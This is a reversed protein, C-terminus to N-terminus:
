PWKEDGCAMEWFLLEYRLIDRFIGQMRTRDDQTLVASDVTAQLWGVFDQMGQSTHIDIWTQYYYNEPKKGERDLRQAWDM